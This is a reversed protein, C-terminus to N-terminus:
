VFIIFQLIRMRPGFLLYISLKVGKLGIVHGKPTDLLLKFVESSAKKPNLVNICGTTLQYSM